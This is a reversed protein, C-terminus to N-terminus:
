VKFNKQWFYNNSFVFLRRKCILYFFMQKEMRSSIPQKTVKLTVCNPNQFRMLSIYQRCQFIEHHAQHAVNRRHCLKGGREGLCRKRIDINPRPATGGIVPQFKSPLHVVEAKLWIWCLGFSKPKDEVSSGIKSPGNGFTSKTGGATRGRKVQGM